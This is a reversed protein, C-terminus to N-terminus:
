KVGPYRAGIGTVNKLFRIQMSPPRVSKMGGVQALFVILTQKKGRLQKPDCPMLILGSKNDQSYIMLRPLTKLSIFDSVPAYKCKITLNFILNVYCFARLTQHICLINLIERWPPTNCIIVVIKSIYCPV